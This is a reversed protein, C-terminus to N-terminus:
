VLTMQATSKRVHCSFASGSACPCWTVHRHQDRYERSLHQERHERVLLTLMVGARTILTILERTEKTYNMPYNSNGMKM